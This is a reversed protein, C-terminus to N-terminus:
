IKKTSEYINRRTLSRFLDAEIKRSDDFSVPEGSWFSALLELTAVYQVPGSKIEPFQLISALRTEDYLLPVFM